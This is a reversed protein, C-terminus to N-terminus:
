RPPIREDDVLVGMRFSIGHVANVPGHAVALGSVEAVGSVPV